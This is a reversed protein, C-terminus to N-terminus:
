YSFYNLNILVRVSEDSCTKGTHRINNDFIVVRNEVSNVETGDEFITCGNNTNIYYIATKGTPYNYDIHYDFYKPLQNRTLLNSKVKIVTQANLKQFLPDLLSYQNSCVGGDEVSFFLHIFQYVDVDLVENETPNVVSNQYYWPFNRGMLVEKITTFSVPDLFNDEIIINKNM